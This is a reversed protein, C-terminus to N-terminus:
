VRYVRAKAFAGLLLAAAETKAKKKASATTIATLALVRVTCWFGDGMDDFEYTQITL